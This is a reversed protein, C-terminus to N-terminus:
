DREGKSGAGASATQWAQGPVLRAAHDARMKQIATLLRADRGYVERDGVAPLVGGRIVEDLIEAMFAVQSRRTPVQAALKEVPHQDEALCVQAGDQGSVLRVVVRGPRM